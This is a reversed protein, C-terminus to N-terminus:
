AVEGMTETFNGRHRFDLHLHQYIQGNKMKGDAWYFGRFIFDVASLAENDLVEVM